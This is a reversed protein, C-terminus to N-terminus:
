FVSSILVGRLYACTLRLLALADGITVPVTALALV